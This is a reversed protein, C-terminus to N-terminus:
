GRGAFPASSRARSGPAPARQANGDGVIRLMRHRNEPCDSVLDESGMGQDPDVYCFGPVPSNSEFGSENQCKRLPMSPDMDDSLQRLQCGDAFFLVGDDGYPRNHLEVITCSSIVDAFPLPKVLHLM